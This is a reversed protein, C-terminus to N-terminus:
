TLQTREPSGSCPRIPSLGLWIRVPWSRLTEQCRTCSLHVRYNVAARQGLLVVTVKPHHGARTLRDILEGRRAKYDLEVSRVDM